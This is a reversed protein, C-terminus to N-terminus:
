NLNLTYFCNKSLVQTTCHDVGLCWGFASAPFPTLEKIPKNQKTRVSPRVGDGSIIFWKELKHKPKHKPTSWYIIHINFSLNSFKKLVVYDKCTTAIAPKKNILVISMNYTTWNVINSLQKELTKECLGASECQTILLANWTKFYNFRFIVTKPKNYKM